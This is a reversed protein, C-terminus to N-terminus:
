SIIHHCHTGFMNGRLGRAVLLHLVSGAYALGSCALGSCALGSCVAAVFIVRNSSFPNYGYYSFPNGVGSLQDEHSHLIRFILREKSIPAEVRWLLTHIKDM